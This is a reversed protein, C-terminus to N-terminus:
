DSVNHQKAEPHTKRTGFIKSEAASFRACWERLEHHLKLYHSKSPEKGFIAIKANLGEDVDVERLKTLIQVMNLLAAEVLESNSAAADDLRVNIRIGKRCPTCSTFFAGATGISTFFESFRENKPFMSITASTM